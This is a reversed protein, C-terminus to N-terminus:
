ARDRTAEAVQSATMGFTRIRAFQLRPIERATQPESSVPAEVGDLCLPAPPLTGLARPKRSPQDALLPPDSASPETAQRKPAFLAEAAHRARTMRERDDGRSDPREWRDVLLREPSKAARLLSLPNTLKPLSSKPVGSGTGRGVAEHGLRAAEITSCLTPIHFIVYILVCGMNSNFRAGFVPFVTDVGHM